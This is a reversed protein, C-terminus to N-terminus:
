GLEVLVNGGEVRVKYSTADDIRISVFAIKLMEM